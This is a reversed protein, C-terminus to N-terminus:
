KNDRRINYLLVDRINQSKEVGHFSVDSRAFALMTNPVLGFDAVSKFHEFPYHKGTTCKFGKKNPVYIQTGGTKSTVKPLYFLATIVKSQIDTHPSISYDEKDRILLIDETFNDDKIEFRDLLHKKLRGDLLMGEVEKWLDGELPATYRLPYGMTGRSKAIEIYNEPLNNVMQEYLDKDFVDKAFLHPYPTKKMKSKSINDVLHVRKKKTSKNEKIVKRFVYEACGKFPGDKRMSSEVQKPDFSFGLSEIEKIMERHEPLNTNVEILISKAKGLLARAGKIVSPERGDVDIKIHDATLGLDDLRLGISGQTIGQTKGFSHCSGGVGSQSLGLVGLEFGDSIAACYGTVNFKNLLINRQLLAYNEAEPEFATVHVGRSGALMSYGGMNAGVDIMKEGSKMSRIWEITVPEKTFITNVRWKITDNPVNFTVKQGDFEVTADHTEVPPKPKKPGVVIHLEKEQEKENLLAIDFFKELKAKWWAKDKVILHANQGNDYKKVAPRTSIVFFGVRKTVRKLDDLVFNIKDPEIHELVDTCVVLDAPAPIAAIEPIAPDYQDISFPLSKALMGKGAGYDLVKVFQNEPTIMGKVIKVVTHAHKSGSMGYTPNDQHLKANLHVYEKSILEPRNFAIPAGTMPNRKYHKAMDQILGEGYFTVNVDNLQDLEHFTEKAVHLMSPTTLYKKGMFETQFAEKPKNPHETTHSNTETMSGDMGFIHQNTFGMFRALTMCRSGVSSGGSLMWEGKPLVMQAEDDNAFIHWLKVNYGELADLYKPHITSAILYETEKQPQGLMTIKHGRPDLDLHYTPIIGREVLFKHAGSCTMVYKFKKIQEWTDNLSPGFGVIAIPEPNLTETAQLRGKVKKINILIQQDRLANSICYGVNQKENVDLTKITKTAEEQM